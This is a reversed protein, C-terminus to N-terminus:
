MPTNPLPVSAAETSAAELKPRLLLVFILGCLVGATNAAMDRVDWTRGPVFLQGYELLVGMAITGLAVLVTVLRREHVAPLVMMTLYAGFHLAKDSVRLEDFFRIPASTSPVLSGTVVCAVTLLWVARLMGKGTM